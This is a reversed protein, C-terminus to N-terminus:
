APRRSDIMRRIDDHEAFEGGDAAALGKEVERSFWGECNLLREIAEQVLAQEPRGREVAM